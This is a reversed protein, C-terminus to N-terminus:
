KLVMLRKIRDISEQPDNLNLHIICKVENHICTKSYETICTKSYETYVTTNDKDRETWFRDHDSTLWYQRVGIDPKSFKTERVEYKM